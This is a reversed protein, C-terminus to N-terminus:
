ETRTRRILVLHAPGGLHSDGPLTVREYLGRLAPTREWEENGILLYRPAGTSWPGDYTPIHDHWYFVAGYDFTRYFFLRDSPGVVKRVAAMFPRLGQHEAIGPLIAHKVSLIGAAATCFVAAFIGMWNGARAARMCGYLSAVAVLLCTLLLGRESRIIEGIWPAFPQARPPLWSQAFAVLPAGLSELLVVLVTLVLVSMLIGAAARATPALWRAEESGAPRGDWWWGLVLALAPYLALLYVSRKSASLAYFGFVVACWVLLYIQPDHRTLARRERWIRVAVGPLFLTWPLVGLLLAGLLYVAAHRHGGSGYEPSDLFTFINESLVQKRFFEWGGLILAMVYWGGALVAVALAGWGLRMRRLPSFDRMLALMTLAVLGPLLAGVPGKGLVALTVGLYLPILWGRRGGRLFFLLSVFALQLGFTLAMDVRANTAARAWEFMTMLALASLLGARASWLATGTGFVCLLGGLSLAASPFRISWEDTAGHVLSTLAGLWHFLPPKSPLEVGNRRPLIWGGGHTMEWVVLGERPEGKTYFSAQGLGWLHLAAWAVLVCAAYPLIAFSVARRAAPAGAATDEHATM